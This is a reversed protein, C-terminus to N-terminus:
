VIPQFHRPNTTVLTMNKVWATAAILADAPHQRLYPYRTVLESFAQAIADDPNIQRFRGLLRRIIRSESNSIRAHLLEKRTQKAYYFVGLPNQFFLRAIRNGRWWAIFVGTDILYNQLIPQTPDSM